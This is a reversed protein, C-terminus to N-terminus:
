RRHDIVVVQLSEADGAPRVSVEDSLLVLPSAARDTTRVELRSGTGKRFPGVTVQLRRDRATLRAEIREGAAASAAHAALTDTVLYVDSFRDLSFHATAALTRALRGLVAALLTVPSLSIVVEGDQAPAFSIEPAAPPPPSFLRQDDRRGAFDMQVATGGGDRPLLQVQETLARIVSLGIGSQADAGSAPAPMGAGRDEVTVRLRDGAVFVGVDMPGPEGDYAHLVVNNCAESVSTKLDDLLEPDLALLEAVGGLMGRVITLAQPRSELHLRVTSGEAMVEASLLNGAVRVPL